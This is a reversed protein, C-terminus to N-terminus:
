IILERSALKLDFEVMEECLAEIDTRPRWGLKQYAKSADGLLTEVETPRFYGKDVTVVTDGVRVGPSKDGNIGVVVAKEEIGTGQFVLEIGLHSASMHIFDRISVQRGTAIVFDDPSDQQLMLWQMEGFDRAHGWDRKADLNGM